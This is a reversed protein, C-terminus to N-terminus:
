CLDPPRCWKTLMTNFTDIDLLNRGESDELVVSSQSEREWTSIFGSYRSVIQMTLSQNFFRISRLSPCKKARVFDKIAQDMETWENCQRVWNKRLGLLKIQPSVIRTLIRNLSTWNEVDLVLTQLNPCLLHLEPLDNHTFSLGNYFALQLTTLRSGVIPLISRLVTFYKCPPYSYILHTLSTMSEAMEEFAAPQVDWKNVIELYETKPCIMPESQRSRMSSPGIRGVIRCKLRKLQGRGILKCLLQSTTLLCDFVQLNDGCTDILTQIIVDPLISTQPNEEESRALPKPLDGRCTFIQLCPFHRIIAAMHSAYRASAANNQCDLDLRRTFAGYGFDDDMQAKSTELVELLADVTSLRRIVICRFILRIAMAHWKKCVLSIGTTAGNNRRIDQGIVRVSPTSSGPYITLAHTNLAEDVHFVWGLIEM